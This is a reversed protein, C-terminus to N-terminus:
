NDRIGFFIKGMSEYQILQMDATLNYYIGNPLQFFSNNYFSSKYPLSGEYKEINNTVQDYVLCDKSESNLVNVGGVIFIHEEFNKRYSICSSFKKKMFSKNGFPNLIQWEKKTELDLKEISTIYELKESDYGFFCYLFTDNIVCCTAGDRIFNLDPLSTWLKNDLYDFIEVDKSNTGGLACISKLYPIEFMCHNSKSELLNPLKIKEFIKPGVRTLSYFTDLEEIEDNENKSKGGSIFCFPLKICTSFGIPFKKDLQLEIKEVEKKYPNYLCLAEENKCPILIEFMSREKWTFNKLNTELDFNEKTKNENLIALKKYCNALNEEVEEKSDLEFKNEKIIVVGKEENYVGKMIENIDKKNLASNSELNITRTNVMSRKLTANVNKHISKKEEEQQNENEQQDRDEYYDNLKFNDMDDGNNEEKESNGIFEIIKTQARGIILQSNDFTKRFVPVEKVVIKEVPVEKEVIKEVVTEKPIEVEKETTKNQENEIDIETTPINSNYEDENINLLSCIINKFNNEANSINQNLTPLKTILTEIEPIFPNILSLNLQNTQENIKEYLSMESNNEKNTNDFSKTIDNIEKYFDIFTNFIKNKDTEFKLIDHIKNLKNINLQEIKTKESEETQKPLEGDKIVNCENKNYKNIINKQLEFFNLMKKKINKLENILNDISTIANDCIKTNLEVKEKEEIKKSKEEEKSSNDENLNLYLNIKNSLDPILENPYKLTHSSDHKSFCKDCVFYDCQPCYKKAQHFIQYKCPYTQDKDIKEKIIKQIKEFIMSKQTSM